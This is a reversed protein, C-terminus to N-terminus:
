LGTLSGVRVATIMRHRAVSEHQPSCALSVVGGGEVPATLTFTNRFITGVNPLASIATGLTNGGKQIQCDVLEAANQESEVGTMATVMWNGNPLDMEAVPTFTLAPLTKGAGDFFFFGQSRENKALKKTTVARQKIQKTGIKTAAYAGGALAVCLATIAVVMAPSPLRLIRKM